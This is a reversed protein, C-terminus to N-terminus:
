IFKGDDESGDDEYVCEPVDEPVPDCDKSLEEAPVGDIFAPDIDLEVTVMEGPGFRACSPITIRTSAGSRIAKRVCRFADEPEDRLRRISMMFECGTPIDWEVPLYIITATGAIGTRKTIEYRVM